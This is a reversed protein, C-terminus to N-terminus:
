ININLQIYTLLLQGFPHVSHALIIQPFGHTGQPYCLSFLDFYKKELNLSFDVPLAPCKLYHYKNYFYIIKDCPFVPPEQVGAIGM